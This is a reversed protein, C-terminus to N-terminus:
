GLSQLLNKASKLVIEPSKGPMHLRLRNDPLLRLDGESARVQAIVRAPDVREPDSWTVLLEKGHRELTKVRLWRALLRVRVAETLNAAEPPLDGYRDILETEVAGVEEETKAMALRRYIVLRQNTDGVYSEPIFAPVKLDIEVDVEEELAEGRLERVARDLLETFMEYGIAAIHGSQDAGLLNGAGRIELDHAALKFGSGLEVLEQLAALRKRADASLAREAPIFLYAYARQPGRGVRGRMQYLQALGFRDASDVLLTNVNPLDLGNEIISTSVLVNSEGRQFALMVKELKREEMQGHGVAIKAEPVLSKVLAARADITQVRNHVFFVQGGRALERRIAEAAQEEDWPMVFTRIALRDEPPTNIVSLDRLGLMAMHLTRPIPTATLTLVDVLKRAQKIREKHRVGFRQEEDVVLLGLSRFKVGAALLSHTGIIVDIKGQELRERIAKQEKPSKFRSLEEVVIPYDKFREAFTQHHQLALITTPVLVAVQRGETVVKFAARLAVETKGYGVDGCVLRDMPRPARLDALVDEIAREQDPTEEYPFRAEFEQFPEDPPGFPERRLVQRAAHVDILERAMMRVAQAARGKVKVWATGGLRDLRPPADDAGVYRQVLDIRRVPLYLRDNAAFELLLFDGEVEGLSLHALGRYQAIGHDRHVLHDDPKLDEISAAFAEAARERAARAGRMKRRPGFIESETVIAVADQAFRLGASLGGIAIGEVPRRAAGTPVIGEVPGDRWIPLDLRYGELLRRLREASGLSAAVLFISRGEDRWDGMARVLPTLAHEQTHVEELRARLDDNREFAFRLSAAGGADAGVIDKSDIQLAAAELRRAPLDAFVEEEARWLARPEVHFHGAERVRAHGRAIEEGFEEIAARVDAPEVILPLVDPGLHDTLPVAGPAMLPLLFEVGPHYIGRELGEMVEIRKELSYGIESLRGRITEKSRAITERDLIVERAPLIRVRGPPAGRAAGRSGPVARRAEESGTYSRQSEPDYPRIREIRDDDYEIRVPDDADVPFVDLIAGRVSFEGRTEALPGGSYGLAVLRRVAEDRDITQGAELDFASGLIAQPSLVRQSLGRADTVVALVRGGPGAPTALPVSLRGLVALREFSTGRHPSLRDYPLIEWSPFHLVRASADRVGSQGALFRLDEAFAEAAPATPLIALVIGRPAAAREAFLRALLYAPASGPVGALRIPGKGRALAELLDALTSESRVHKEM